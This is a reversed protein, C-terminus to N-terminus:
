GRKLATYDTVVPKAEKQEPAELALQKAKQERRAEIMILIDDHTLEHPTKGQAADVNTQNVQINTQHLHVEQELPRSAAIQSQIEINQLTKLIQQMGAEDNPLGMATRYIKQAKEIASTCNLIDISRLFRKHKKGDSDTWEVDGDALMKVAKALSLKSSKIHEDQVAAMIDVHRKVLNETVRNQATERKPYWDTAPIVRFINAIQGPSYGKFELYGSPSHNGYFFAWELVLVEVTHELKSKGAIDTIGLPDPTALDKSAKIEIPKVPRKASKKTKKTM